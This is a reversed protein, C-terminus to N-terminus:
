SNPAQQCFYLELKDPPIMNEDALEVGLLLNTHSLQKVVDGIGHGIWRFM